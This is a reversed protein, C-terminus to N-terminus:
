QAMTSLRAQLWLMDVNGAAITTFQEKTADEGNVQPPQFVATLYRHMEAHGDAFCMAGSGNHYAAPFNPLDTTAPNQYILFEGDDVSDDREDIIVFAMAPSILKIDTSRHFSIGDFAPGLPPADPTGMAVSMSCTRCLPLRALRAGSGEEVTVRSAACRYVPASNIYPGLTGNQPLLFLATNTNDTINAEYAEEWGSLWNENQVHNAEDQWINLALYDKNDLAYMQWGIDIQRYNSLCRVAIAKARAKTLAPLLLAALIAIIAVVVLLEILTFGSGRHTLCRKARAQTANSAQM